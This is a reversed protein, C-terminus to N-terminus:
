AKMARRLNHQSTELMPKIKSWYSVDEGVIAQIAVTNSRWSDEVDQLDLDLTFVAGKRRPNLFAFNARARFGCNSGSSTQAKATRALFYQLEDFSSCAEEFSTLPLTGIDLVVNSLTGANDSGIAQCWGNLRKFVHGTNIGKIVFTNVRYFLSVCEKHITRCVEPLALPHVRNSGLFYNWGQATTYPAIVFPESRQLAHAFITIRLEPPLRSLVSNDM